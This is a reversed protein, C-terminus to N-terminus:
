DRFGTVDIGWRATTMEGPELTIVDEGSRLADPPCTMPEVALGRRREGPLLGDGSYLLLWPFGRDAWLVLRRGHSSELSVRVCGDPDRVLDTFATDLRTPGIPRAVRFDLETGQVPGRAGPLMRRDAHLVTEAPLRLRWGDIAAAGVTLYAHAGAGFPAPGDGLNTAALTVELGTEELGFTAVLDLCFPYGDRPHLRHRMGLRGDSHAVSVWNVWRALGHIANGFEPEDLPLQHDVEGWRYRGDGVRGPWPMLLQGRAHTALQGEDFGLIAPRGGVLYTRLTAGVETVV